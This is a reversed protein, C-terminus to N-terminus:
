GDSEVGLLRASRAHRGVVVGVADDRLGGAGRLFIDALSATRLPPASTESFLRQNQCRLGIYHDSLTKKGVPARIYWGQIDDRRKRRTQNTKNRRHRARFPKSISQSSLQDRYLAQPSACSSSDSPPTFPWRRPQPV